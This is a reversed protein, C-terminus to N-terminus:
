NAKSLWLAIARWRDPQPLLAPRKWKVPPAIAASAHSRHHPSSRRCKARLAPHLRAWITVIVHERESAEYYEHLKDRLRRADNRVTADDAGSFGRTETCSPQLV